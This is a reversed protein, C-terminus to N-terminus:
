QQVRQGIQGRIGTPFNANEAFTWASGFPFTERLAEAEVRAAGPGAIQAPLVRELRHAATVDEDDGAEFIKSRRHQQLRQRAAEGDDTGVM